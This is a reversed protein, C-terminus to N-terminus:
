FKQTRSKDHLLDTTNETVSSVPQLSGEDLL